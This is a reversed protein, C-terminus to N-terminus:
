LFCWIVVTVWAYLEEAVVVPEIIKVTVLNCLCGWTVPFLLLLVWVWAM